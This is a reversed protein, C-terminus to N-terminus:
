KEKNEKGCHCQHNEEHCHCEHGEEDCHCEHEEEEYDEEDMNMQEFASIWDSVEEDEYDEEKDCFRAGWDLDNRHILDEEPIKAPDIFIELLKAEGEAHLEVFDSTAPVLIVEGEHFPVIHDLAKVAAIGEVCLYAVFSDLKRFDKKMPKTLSLINVQFYDCDAIQTTHNPRYSYHTKADKVPKFSLADMAERTHLPRPNGQSDRRNYDYLRYTCDSTQQIEALLLGEGLAHARGAPIFFVDGRQVNEHHMIEELHDLALYQQYEQPTVEKEFGSILTSGKEADLIYWMETKGNEMGRERALRDDPHVQISLKQASNIIKVLLPFETGYRDFLREGILEGMYIELLDTITNEALFGNEVVSENGPLASLVWMEGCNELPAYDFGLNKIKNGGWLTNKYLPLFKLPYLTTDAM